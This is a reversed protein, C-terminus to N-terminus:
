IVLFIFGCAVFAIGFLKALVSRRDFSEKLITPLFVSLLASSIFVFFHEIGKMAHIISVPGLFIAGNLLFFGIGAIIKNSIFLASSGSKLSLTNERIKRWVGPLLLFLLAAVFTGLRSWVFGAIFPEGGIVELRAREFLYKLLFASAGFFFGSVFSYLAVHGNFRVKRHEGSVSEAALFAGGIIFMLIAFFEAWFIIVSYFLYEFFLIFLPSSGGVLPVVRSTDGLSLARYLYYLACLLLAGSIFAVLILRAPILAFGFPAFILASFISFLGTYFAYSSANLRGKGVLIKDIVQSLGTLFYSGVALPIWAYM